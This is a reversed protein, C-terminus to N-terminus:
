LNLVTEEADRSLPVSRMWTTWGLPTAEEGEGGLVCGPVDEKALVLQIEFNFREESFFRTLTRLTEYASGEPLFDDYQRRSLPGIRLRIRGQQDWIENGAVAGTGLQSSASEEDGLACQTEAALPYWGGVFQEVEIPVDFYDELMQELAAASRAQQGLLGAYYLLSEDPVSLLDQVSEMGLGILDRLHETVPDSREREYAIAFRNKEWARYFLSILRHNFIDLFDRLARDRARVREAVLLSHYLPLIGLPGNLGLFNVTLKIQGHPELDLTQIESAPFHVNTNAGFRAVEEKPDAFQGVRRRDPFLRELVRVAQFFHFSTPEELIEKQLEAQVISTDEM